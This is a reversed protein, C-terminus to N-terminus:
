QFNTGCYTNFQDRLTAWSSTVGTGATVATGTLGLMARLLILGERTAALTGTAISTSLDCRTVASGTSSTFSTATGGIILTTTATAAEGPTDHRLAVYDGSAIRWPATIWGTSFGGCTM